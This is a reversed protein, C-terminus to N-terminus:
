YYIGPPVKSGKCYSFVAQDYALHEVDSASMQLEDTIDKVWRRKPRKRRGPTYREMIRKTLKTVNCTPLLNTMHM